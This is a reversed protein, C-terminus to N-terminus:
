NFSTQPLCARYPLCMSIAHQVSQRIVQFYSISPLASFNKRKQLGKQVVCYNIKELLSFLNTIFLVRHVTYKQGTGEYEIYRSNPATPKPNMTRPLM